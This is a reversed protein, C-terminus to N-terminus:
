ADSICFMCDWFCFALLLFENPFLTSYIV